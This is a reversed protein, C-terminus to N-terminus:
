GWVVKGSMGASRIERARSTASSELTFLVPDRHDAVRHEIDVQGAVDLSDRWFCRHRDDTHAVPAVREATRGVDRLIDRREARRGLQDRCHARVFRRLQQLPQELFLPAIRASEHRDIARRRGLRPDNRACLLNHADVLFDVFITRGASM